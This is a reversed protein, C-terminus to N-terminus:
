NSGNNLVEGVLEIIEKAEGGLAVPYYAGEFEYLLICEGNEQIVYRLNGLMSIDFQWIGLLSPKNLLGLLHEFGVRVGFLAIEDYTQFLSIVKNFLTKNFLSKNFM